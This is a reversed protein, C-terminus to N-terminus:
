VSAQCYLSLNRKLLNLFQSFHYEIVTIHSLKLAPVSPGRSSKVLALAQSFSFSPRQLCVFQAEM